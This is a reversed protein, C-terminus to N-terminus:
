FTVATGILSSVGRSIEPPYRPHRNPQHAIPLGPARELAAYAEAAATDFALVGRGFLSLIREELAARLAHKRRGERVAALM